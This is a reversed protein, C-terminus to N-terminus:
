FEWGQLERLAKLEANGEIDAPDPSLGLEAFRKPNLPATPEGADDVLWDEADAQVCFQRRCGGMAVSEAPLLVNDLNCDIFMVDSTGAPFVQTGPQEQAFCTGILTSGSWEAPDSALFTRGTYDAHSHLENFAM